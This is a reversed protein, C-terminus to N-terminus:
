SRKVIKKIIKSYEGIDPIEFVHNHTYLYEKEPEMFIYKGNGDIGLLNYKVNKMTIRKSVTPVMTCKGPYEWQGKTSIVGNVSNLIFWWDLSSLTKNNHIHDRLLHIVWQNDKVKNLYELKYIRKIIYNGRNKFFKDCYNLFSEYSKFKNFKPIDYTKIINFEKICNKTNYKEKNFNLLNKIKDKYKIFTPDFYHNELFSHIELKSGYYFNFLIDKLNPIKDKHTTLLDQFGSTYLDKVEKTEKIPNGGNLHICWDVYCHKLEHLLSDITLNDFNLKIYSIYKKKIKDYGSDNHLYENNIGENIVVTFDSLNDGLQPYKSLDISLYEKYDNNSYFVKIEEVILDKLKNVILSIGLM